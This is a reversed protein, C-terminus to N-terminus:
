GPVLGAYNGPLIFLGLTADACTAGPETRIVGRCAM